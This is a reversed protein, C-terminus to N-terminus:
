SEVSGASEIGLVPPLRDVVLSVGVGAVFAVGVNALLGCLGVGVTLWLRDTRLAGRGLEVAVLALLVGLM